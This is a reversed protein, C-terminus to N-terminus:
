EREQKLYLIQYTTEGATGFVATVLEWGEAGAQKLYEWVEPCTKRAEEAHDPSLAMKGQWKGNVFNVQSGQIQCVRYEFRKAMSKVGGSIALAANRDTGSM